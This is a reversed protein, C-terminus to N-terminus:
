GYWTTTETDTIKCLPRFDNFHYKRDPYSYNEQPNIQSQIPTRDTKYKTNMKLLGCFM